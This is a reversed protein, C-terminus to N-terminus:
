AAVEDHATASQPAHTLALFARELTATEARLEALAVGHDAAWGLLAALSHQLENTEITVTGRHEVVRLHRLDPLPPATRLSDTAFCITSPLDAVIEAPSGSRVIQGGHM